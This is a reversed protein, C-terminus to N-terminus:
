SKPESKAETKPFLIPEIKDAAVEAAGRFVKQLADEYQEGFRPYYQFKIIKFDHVKGDVVLTLWGRFTIDRITDERLPQLVFRIETTRDPTNGALREAVVRMPWKRRESVYEFAMDLRVFDDVANGRHGLPDSVVMALVPRTDAKKKADEKAHCIGTFLLAALIALSRSRILHTKM